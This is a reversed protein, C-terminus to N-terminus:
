HVFRIARVIGDQGVVVDARVPEEALDTNMPLGFSALSTRPLRVRLIQGSTGPQWTAPDAVPVFDTAIETPKAPPPPVERVAQKLRVPAAKPLAVPLPVAVPPVVAFTVRQPAPAPKQRFLGATAAVLIAAAVGAALAWRPWVVPRSRPAVHARERFAALLATEVREPAAVNRMAEKLGQLKEKLAAQDSDRDIM